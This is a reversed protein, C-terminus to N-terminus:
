EVIAIIDDRTANLPVVGDFNYGEDCFIIEKEPPVLGRYWVVFDAVLEIPGDLYIVQGNADASGELDGLEWAVDRVEAGPDGPSALKVRAQPWDGALARALVERELRWTDSEFAAIYTVSRSSGTRHNIYLRGSRTSSLRM